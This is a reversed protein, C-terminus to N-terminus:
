GSPNARRPRRFRDVCDAATRPVTLLELIQRREKSISIVMLSVAIPNAAARMTTPSAANARLAWAVLPEV